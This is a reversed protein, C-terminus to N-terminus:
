CASAKLDDLLRAFAKQYEDRQRWRSFDGIHRTRRVDAPWGTKIEMVSDDVRVPFLVTRRQDDESESEMATEVEKEVWSSAVSDKSLILLLRDYVRIVEDIRRRFRDGIKMDEPAFWCRVGKSQLDTHIRQALEADETSYSIFCSHFQIPQLAAVLARIQVIFSEPVGCGHLFVEPIRGESKYISSISIESPGLHQVSTLGLVGNFNVDAFVTRLLTSNDFNANFLYSATFNAFSLNASRLKTSDLHSGHLDAHSLDASIFLSSSLNSRSLNAGSLDANSFDTSSLDRGHLNAGQLDAWTLDPTISGIERRWRNWHGAGQELIELHKKNAM